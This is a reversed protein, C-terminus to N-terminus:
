DWCAMGWPANDSSFKYPVEENDEDYADGEAPDTPDNYKLFGLPTFPDYLVHDLRLRPIAQSLEVVVCPDVICEVPIRFHKSVAEDITQSKLPETGLWTERDVIITLPMAVVKVTDDKAWHFASQTRLDLRPHGSVKLQKEWALAIRPPPTLQFSEHVRGTGSIIWHRWSGLAQDWFWVHSATSRGSEYRYGFTKALVRDLGTECAKDYIKQGERRPISKVKRALAKVEAQSLGPLLNRGVAVLELTQIRSMRLLTALTRPLEKESRLIEVFQPGHRFRTEQKSIGNM